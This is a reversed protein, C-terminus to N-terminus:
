YDWVSESEFGGFSRKDALFLASTVEAAVKDM